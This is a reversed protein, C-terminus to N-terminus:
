LEKFMEVRKKADIKTDELLNLAENFLKFKTESFSLEKDYKKWRNSNCIQCERNEYATKGFEYWTKLETKVYELTTNFAEKNNWSEQVLFKLLKKVRGATTYSIYDEKDRCVAKYYFIEDLNLTIHGKGYKYNITVETM